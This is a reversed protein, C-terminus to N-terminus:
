AGVFRRQENLFFQRYIPPADILDGGADIRIPHLRVHTEDRESFLIVIDDPSILQRDRIEMRIRDILYDSHTEVVFRHKSAKTMECLFTGLAAQARPHLHVEPQQLLFRSGPAGLLVDVLIPLVQSVGYGVDMLNFAFKGGGVHIQFPDSANSGKRKVEIKQFLGAESGFQQLSDRLREWQKKESWAMEALLM